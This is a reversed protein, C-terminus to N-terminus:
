LTVVTNTRASEFAADLVELTRVGESAPVPEPGEGRVARAFETYFDAYNGQLSPIVERGAETALTGWFEPADFGWAAPDDTPRRGAFLAQAQVDTGSAVYSGASGYARFERTSTYNLKSSSVTSVVGSIHTLTVVFGCDVSGGFRDTYDLTAYVSAVPGLLCLMQDLLHSGVDRLLGGTPGTEMTRPDDLDMVSHVRWLDGLRGSDVVSALTVLDADRRRNHYVNLVLGAREAAAALERGGAADPAFPKDAVVHVGAALAELVLDHRTTPPTTITVADVGSALLATLSPYIPVGPLDAQVELRKAESRAVVGVLEVGEAAQIFPAHFHKGGTGYGVLGIRM